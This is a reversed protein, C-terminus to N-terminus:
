KVLTVPVHSKAIVAQAVSGLIVAAAGTRGHSGMIIGDCGLEQCFGTIIDGPQGVGIHIQHRINAAELKAKAEALAKMGEDFHYGSVAKKGVFTSVASNVPPQATVLHIDSVLGYEALRLAYDVARAANTSGDTPVLVSLPKYSM